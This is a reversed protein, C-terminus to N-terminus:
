GGTQREKRVNAQPNCGAQGGGGPRGDHIPSALIIVIIVIINWRAKLAASTPM